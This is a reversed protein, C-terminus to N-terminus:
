QLREEHAGTKPRSAPCRPAGGQSKCAYTRSASSECVGQAPHVLAFPTDDADEESRMAVRSARTPRALHRSRHMADHKVLGRLRAVTLVASRRGRPAWM